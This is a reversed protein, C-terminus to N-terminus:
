VFQVRMCMCVACACVYLGIFSSLAHFSEVIFYNAPDSKFIYLLTNIIVMGLPTTKCALFTDQLVQFAEQNKVTSGAPAGVLPDSM